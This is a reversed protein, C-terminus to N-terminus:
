PSQRRAELAAKAHDIFDEWHWEAFDPAEGIVQGEVRAIARAMREIDADTFENTAVLAARADRFHGLILRPALVDMDALVEFGSDERDDYQDAVAAFPGLAKRLRAILTGVDETM